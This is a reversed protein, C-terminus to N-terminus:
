RILIGITSPSAAPNANQQHETTPQSQIDVAVIDFVGISSNLVINQQPYRM